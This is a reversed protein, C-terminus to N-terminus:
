SFAGQPSGILIDTATLVFFPCVSNPAPSTPTGGIFQFNGGWGVPTTAFFILGSQGAVGGTPNPINIASSCRFFPSATLDFAGATITIIPSNFSGNVTGSPNPEGWTLVGSGDTSLQYGSTGNGSPLQLTNGAGTAPSKLKVFSATSGNLQLEGTNVSM